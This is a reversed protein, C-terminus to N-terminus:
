QIREPDISYLWPMWYELHKNPPGPFYRPLLIPCSQEEKENPADPETNLSRGRKNSPNESDEDTKRSFTAPDESSAGPSRSKPTCRHGLRLTLVSETEQRRDKEFLNISSDGIYALGLITCVIATLVQAIM